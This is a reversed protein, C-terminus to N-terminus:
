VRTGGILRFVQPKENRGRLLSRHPCAGTAAGAATYHKKMIIGSNLNLFGSPTLLIM